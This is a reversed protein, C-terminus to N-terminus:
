FIVTLPLSPLEVGFGGAEPDLMKGQSTDIKGVRRSAKCMGQKDSLLPSYHQCTALRFGTNILFDGSM